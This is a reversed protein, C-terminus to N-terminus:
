SRHFNYRYLNDHLNDPIFNTHLFIKFNNQALNRINRLEIKILKKCFYLKEINFIFM